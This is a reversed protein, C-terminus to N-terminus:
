LVGRVISQIQVKIKHPIKQGSILEEYFEVLRPHVAKLATRISIDLELQALYDHNCPMGEASSKFASDVSAPMRVACKKKYAAFYRKFTPCLHAKDTPRGAADYHDCRKKCPPSFTAFKDRMLNRLVNETVVNLYTKLSQGKETDFTPIAKWCKIRIEQAIDEHSLYRKAFKRSKIRVLDEVINQVELYEQETCHSVNAM